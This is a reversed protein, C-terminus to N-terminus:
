IRNHSSKTHCGTCTKIGYMEYHCTNCQLNKRHHLLHIGREFALYTHCTCCNENVISNAEPTLSIPKKYNDLFFKATHRFGIKMGTIYKNDRSLIHCDNCTTVKNHTSKEWSTCSENMIHCIKCSKPNDFIYGKM